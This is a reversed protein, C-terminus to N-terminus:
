CARPYRARARRWRGASQCAREARRGARRVAAAPETLRRPVALSGLVACEAQRLPSATRALLRAGAACHGGLHAGFRVRRARCGDHIARAACFGQSGDVRCGDSCDSPPVRGVQPMQDSSKSYRNIEQRAKNRSASHSRRVTITQAAKVLRSLLPIHLHEEASVFSLYPFAWYLWLSDLFGRHNPTVIPALARPAPTGRTRIFLFGLSWLMLRTCMRVVFLATKRVHSFHMANVETCGATALTAFVVAVAVALLFLPLRVPVLLLGSLLSCLRYALPPRRAYTSPVFPNPVSRRQAQLAEPRGLQQVRAASALPAPEKPAPMVSSNKHPSKRTHLQHM